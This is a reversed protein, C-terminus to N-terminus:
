PNQIPVARARATVRTFFIPEIVKEIAELTIERFADKQLQSWEAEFEGETGGLHLWYWLVRQRILPLSQESGQKFADLMKVKLAERQLQIWQKHFEEETGRGPWADRAQQRISALELHARKLTQYDVSGIQKELYSIEAKATEIQQGFRANGKELEANFGDLAQDRHIKRRELEADREQIWSDRKQELQSLKTKANSLYGELIYM